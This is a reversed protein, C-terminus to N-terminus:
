TSRRCTQRITPKCCRMRRGRRRCPCVCRSATPPSYFEVGLPRALYDLGGSFPIAAYVTVQLWLSPLKRMALGEVMPRLEIDYGQYRGRLVPYDAGQQTISGGAFLPRVPMSGSAGGTGCGSAIGTTPGSWYLAMAAALCSLLWSMANYGQGTMARDHGPLTGARRHRERGVRDPAPGLRDARTSGAVIHEIHNEEAYGVIAQSIDRSHVTVCSVQPVGQEKAEGYAAQLEREVQEDGLRMIEADWVRTRPDSSAQAINVSIFTLPVDLTRALACAFSVAKASVHSGDTACLISNIM